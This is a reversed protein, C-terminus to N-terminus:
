KNLFQRMLSAKDKVTFDDDESNLSCSVNAVNTESTEVHKESSNISESLREGVIAMLSKKDLNEVYSTLEESTEIEERTIQGSKIVSAILAEKKEEMEAKIKEQEAKEFKDKYQSLETNESKLINIESSSKLILEDKEAITSEYEAVTSNVDKPSVTLTVYEPDSVTITDNEVSYNMRVYELESKRSEVELWVEKEVPFHFAIYCWKELKARCAERIKNRLDRETLASVETNKVPEDDVTTNADSGSPLVEAVPADSVTNEATNVENNKQLHKEEKAENQIDLGYVLFDQSLAEAFEMDYDTSAIELLGSAPYAPATDKGLLCHGIFRGGDIIKTMLGDVIGKHSKEIAIEWSTHLTGSKIRSVIIDCAKSFRKWIECSAVICEVDNILELGVAFFSGFANTDFEIEEYKKGDEDVKVTKKLNHGTFDYTGDTRMKIKGVLPKNNLTSIWQEIGDRNLAVGNRNRSFDCIVFKAIYSDPNSNDESLFVNSSYLTIKECDNM